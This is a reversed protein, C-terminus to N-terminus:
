DLQKLAEALALLALGYCVQRHRPLPGVRGVLDAHRIARAEDLTKGMVMAVIASGCAVCGPCQYTEYLAERVAGNVVTLHVTMFPGQGPPNGSHGTVRHELDTSVNTERYGNV